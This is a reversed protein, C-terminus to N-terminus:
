RLLLSVLTLVFLMATVVAVYIYAFKAFRVSDSMPLPEYVSISKDTNEPNVMVDPNVPLIVTNSANTIFEADDVSIQGKAVYFRYNDLSVDESSGDTYFLHARGVERMDVKSVKRPEISGNNTNM